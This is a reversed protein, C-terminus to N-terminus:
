ELLLEWEASETTTGALTLGKASGGIADGDDGGIVVSGGAPVVIDDNNGFLDYGNSVSKSVTLVNAGTNTIQLGVVKKGTGDYTGDGYPIATLDISGAGGSLAKTFAIRIATGASTIWEPAHTAYTPKLTVSAKMAEELPESRSFTAVSVTARLGEANAAEIDGDM